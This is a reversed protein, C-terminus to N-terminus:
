RCIPHSLISRVLSTWSHKNKPHNEMMRGFSVPISGQCSKFPFWVSPDAWWFTHNEWWILHRRAMLIQSTGEFFASKGCIKGLDEAETRIGKHCCRLGNLGTRQLRKATMPLDLHSSKPHIRPIGFITFQWSRFIISDYQTKKISKFPNIHFRIHMCPCTGKNQMNWAQNKTAQYSKLRNRSHACTKQHM